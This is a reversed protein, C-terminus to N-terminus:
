DHRGAQAKRRAVVQSLPVDEDNSNEDVDDVGYDGLSEGEANQWGHIGVNTAEVVEDDDDEGPLGGCDAAPGKVMPTMRRRRLMDEQQRQKFAEIYDDTNSKGDAFTFDQGRKAELNRQAPM